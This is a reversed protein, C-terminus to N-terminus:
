RTRLSLLNTAAIATSVAADTAVGVVREAAVLVYSKRRPEMHIFLLPRHLLLTFVGGTRRQQARIMRGAEKVTAEPAVDVGNVSMLVDGVAAGQAAAVSRPEVRSVIITRVRRAVLMDAGRSTGMLALGLRDGSSYRLLLRAADRAVVDQADRRGDFANQEALSVARDGYRFDGLAPVEGHLAIAAPVSHHPQTSRNRRRRAM